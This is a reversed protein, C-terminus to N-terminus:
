LDIADAEQTLRDSTKFERRKFAAAAAKRLLTHAAAPQRASLKAAWLEALEPELRVDDPRSQIMRAAEPLAPWEILFQLARQFDPHAAAHAFARSEAEVDQFDALRRTFARAREASLTREFSAWRADQAAAAQGSRELYDIWASEWAFDPEVPTRAGLRSKATPPGPVAAALVRGADAVRDAALLRQAAEAAIAPTRLAAPTFTAQFADVDKAADAAQRALILWGPSAGGHDAILQLTEGAFAPSTRGLVVPLWDIWSTPDRGIAEMLPGAPAAAGAAALLAGIDGAAQAFVAGLTGDRDRVRVGLRRALDMFLWLRALAMAPDLGALREAILARLIDLDGVFSARRRWSVKGRSTELSALRRDIELALHDAGQEAALEMRLRRKLDPRLDAAEVLIEALREAGLRALNEPSVKKLSATSPPKM